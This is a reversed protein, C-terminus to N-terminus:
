RHLNLWDFSASCFPSLILNHNQTVFDLSHVGVQVSYVMEVCGTNDCARCLGIVGMTQGDTCDPCQVTRRTSSLEINSKLKKRHVIGKSDIPIAWPDIEFPLGDASIAGQKGPGKIIWKGKRTETWIEIKVYAMEAKSIAEFTLDKLRAELAEQRKRAEKESVFVWTKPPGGMGTTGKQGDGSSLSSAKIPPVKGSRAGLNDFDELLRKSIDQISREESQPLPEEEVFEVDAEELYDKIKGTHSPRNSSSSSVSQITSHGKVHRLLIPQCRPETLISLKKVESSNQRRPSQLITRLSFSELTSVTSNSEQSGHRMPCGNSIQVISDASTKSQKKSSMDTCISGTNQRILSLLTEASAIGSSQLSSQSKRLDSISDPELSLQEIKSDVEGMDERNMETSKKERISRDVAQVADILISDRTYSLLPSSSDMPNHSFNRLRAPQGQSQSSLHGQTSTAWMAETLSNNTENLSPPLAVSKVSEQADSNNSQPLQNWDEKRKKQGSEERRLVIIESTISSNLGVNSWNTDNNNNKNKKSNNSSSAPNTTIGYEPKTNMTSLFPLSPYDDDDHQYKFLPSEHLAPKPYHQETQEVNNQRLSPTSANPLRRQRLNLPPILHDPHSHYDRHALRISM